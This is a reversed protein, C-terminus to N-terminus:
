RHQDRGLERLTRILDGRKLHKVDIDNHQAIVYGQILQKLRLADQAWLFKIQFHDTSNMVRIAINLSGFLIGTHAGVNLVDEIRVTIIDQSFMERKILTVKTRDLIISDPFLMFPFVSRCSDLVEHSEAAIKKLSALKLARNESKKGKPKGFPLSERVQEASPLSVEKQLFDKVVDYSSVATQGIKRSQWLLYNYPRFQARPPPQPTPQEFTVDDDM